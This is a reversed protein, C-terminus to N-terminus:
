SPSRRTVAHALMQLARKARHVNVQLAGGKLQYHRRLLRESLRDARLRWRMIEPWAIAAVSVRYSAADALSYRLEPALKNGSIREYVYAYRKFRTGAGVASARAAVEVWSIATGLARHLVHLDHFARLPILWLATGLDILESHVFSITAADTASPVSYDNGDIRHARANEWVIRAPLANEFAKPVVATHLEVAAPLDGRALGTLHHHDAGDRPPNPTEAYGDAILVERAALASDRPVLLDIDSTQRCVIDRLLGTLLYAAGKILVVPIGARALSGICAVTQTKIAANRARNLDHFSELYEREREGLGRALGRQELTAWLTPTVSAVNAHSIIDLWPIDPAAFFERLEAAADPTDPAFLV